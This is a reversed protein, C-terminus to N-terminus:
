IEEAIRKVDLFSLFPYTHRICKICDVLGMKSKVNRWHEIQYTIDIDVTISYQRHDNEKLM